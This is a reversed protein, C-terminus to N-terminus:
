LDFFFLSWHIGAAWGPVRTFQSGKSSWLVLTRLARLHHEDSLMAACEQIWFTTVQLSTAGEGEATTCSLLM